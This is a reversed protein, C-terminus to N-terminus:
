RVYEEVEQRVAVLNSLAQDRRDRAARFDAETKDVLRLARNLKELAVRAKFEPSRTNTM